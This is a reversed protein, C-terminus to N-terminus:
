PREGITGRQGIVIPDSLPKMTGGQGAMASSALAAIALVTIARIRKFVTM